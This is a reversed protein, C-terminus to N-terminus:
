TTAAASNNGNTHFVGDGDLDAWRNKGLGKSPVGEDLDSPASFPCLDVGDDVGDADCDADCDGGADDPDGDLDEQGANADAPCNDNAHAVGDGDAAQISV